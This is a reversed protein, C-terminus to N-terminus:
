KAYWGPGHTGTTHWIVPQGKIIGATGDQLITQRGAKQRIGSLATAATPSIVKIDAAKGMASDFQNQLAALKSELLDGITAVAEHQIGPALDVGLNDLKSQIDAETGGTGRWVKTAEDAVAKQIIQYNNAHKGRELGFERGLSNLVSNYKAWDHNGLADIADSLDQMHGISTNLANINKGTPGTTFEARTKARQQFNTADFTQDYQSVAQILPQLRSMAMGTPFPQRGEAMSKIQAAFQPPLRQLFEDGHLTTIDAQASDAASQPAGNSQPAAGVSMPVAGPVRQPTQAPASGGGFFRRRPEQGPLLGGFPNAARETQIDHEEAEGAKRREFDLQDAKQKAEEREKQTLTSNLFTQWSKPDYKAPIRSVVSAPAKSLRYRLANLSAQDTVGGAESSLVTNWESEAKAPATALDQATKQQEQFNKWEPSGALAATVAAEDYEDPAGLNTKPNFATSPDTPDLKTASGYTDVWKSYGRSRPSTLVAKFRKAADQATTADGLADLMDQAGPSGNAVEDKLSSRLVDVRQDKAPDLPAQMLNIADRFHGQLEPDAIKEPTDPLAMIDALGTRARSLLRDQQKNLADTREWSFKQRKESQDQVAARQQAVWIPVRKQVDPDDLTKSIDGSYQGLKQTLFQEDDAEKQAKALNLQNYQHQERADALALGRQQAALPDIPPGVQAALPILPNIPM